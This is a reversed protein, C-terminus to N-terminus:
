DAYLEWHPNVDPDKLMQILIATQKRCEDESMHQAVGADIFHSVPWKVPNSRMEAVSIGYFSM